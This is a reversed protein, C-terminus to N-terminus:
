DANISGVVTEARSAAAADYIVELIATMTATNRRGGPWV